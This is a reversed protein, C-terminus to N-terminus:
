SGPCNVNNSIHGLISDFQNVVSEFGKCPTRLFQLPLYCFAIRYEREAAGNEAARLPVNIRWVTLPKAPPFIVSLFGAPVPYPTVRESSALRM